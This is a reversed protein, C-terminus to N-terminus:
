RKTAARHTVSKEITVLHDRVRASLADFEALVAARRHDFRIRESLVGVLTGLM